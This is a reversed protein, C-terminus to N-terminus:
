RCFCGCDVELSTRIAARLSFDAAVTAIASSAFCCALTSTSTTMSGITSDSLMTSTLAASCNSTMGSDAITDSFGSAALLTNLVMVVSIFFFFNRGRRLAWSLFPPPRCVFTLFSSRLFYRSYLYTALSRRSWSPILSSCRDLTRPWIHALPSRKPTSSATENISSFSASNINGGSIALFNRSRTFFNV